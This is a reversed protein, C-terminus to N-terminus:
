ADEMDSTGAGTPSAHLRVQIYKRLQDVVGQIATLKHPVGAKNAVRKPNHTAANKVSLEPNIGGKCLKNEM